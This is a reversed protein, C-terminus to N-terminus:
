RRVAEVADILPATPRVACYAGVRGLMRVLADPDIIGGGARGQTYGSLWAALLAARGLQTQLTQGCTLAALDSQAPDPTGDARRPWEEDAAQMALADRCTEGLQRLNDRVCATVRGRGPAVGACLARRDPRCAPTAVAAQVLAHRCEPSTEAFREQLCRAIRGAGPEVGKCLTRVDAACARALDGPGAFAQGTLLGGMVLAAALSSKM